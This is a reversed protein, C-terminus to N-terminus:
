PSDKGTAPLSLEPPRCALRRTSITKDSSLPFMMARHTPPSHATLPRHTPPSHADPARNPTSAQQVRQRPDNASRYDALKACYIMVSPENSSLLYHM